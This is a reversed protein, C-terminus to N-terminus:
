ENLSMRKVVFNRRHRPRVADFCRHQTSISSRVKCIGVLAEKRKAFGQTVYPKPPEPWVYFCDRRSLLEPLGNVFQLSPM